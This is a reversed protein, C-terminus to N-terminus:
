DSGKDLANGSSEPIQPSSDKHKEFKPLGDNVDVARQSYFIHCSPYFKRQDEHSEFHLLTPFVMLMKRGEDMIPTRCNICSVKCPLVYEQSQEEANWFVLQDKGKTFYLDTKEIIAAWQFPAGHLTQCTRCHCFKADLPRERSIEFQVKSCFCSGQHRAKFPKPQNLSYPPHVMGNQQVREREDNYRDNYQSSNPGDSSTM